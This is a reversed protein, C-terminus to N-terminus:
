TPLDANERLLCNLCNRLTCLGCGHQFSVPIGKKRAASLAENRARHSVMNTLILVADADGIRNAISAKKGGDANLVRLQIGLEAAEAQYRHTLRDMGGVVVISM